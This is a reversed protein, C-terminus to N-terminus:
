SNNLRKILVQTSISCVYTKDDTIVASCPIEETLYQLRGAEDESNLFDTVTRSSPPVTELNLVAIVSKDPISLDGEVHVYM